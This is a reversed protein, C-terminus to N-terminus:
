KRPSGTAAGRRVAESAAATRTEVGLKALIRRVHTGVTRVGCGVIQAIEGDRKGQIIWLLVEAERPTLRFTQQLQATEPAPQERLDLLATFHQAHVHALAIHPGILQATTLESESFDVERNLTIGAVHDPLLLPLVVQYKGGVLALLDTYLAMSRLQRDSLFDSIAMQQRAGNQIAGYIPHEIPVLEQLRERWAAYDPPPRNIADRAVGTKTNFEDMTIVVDPILDELVRFIRSSFQALDVETHIRELAESFVKLEQTCLSTM